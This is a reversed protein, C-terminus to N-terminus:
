ARLVVRCMFCRVAAACVAVVVCVLRVVLVAWKRDLVGGHARSGARGDPAVLSGDDDDCLGPGSIFTVCVCVCVCVLSSCFVHHVARWGAVWLAGCCVASLAGLSRVGMAGVWRRDCGVARLVPVRTVRGVCSDCAVCPVRVMSVHVYISSICIGISLDCGLVSVCPCVARARSLWVRPCVLVCLAGSM